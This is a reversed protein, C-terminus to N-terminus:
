RNKSKQVVEVKDFKQAKTLDSLLTAQARQAEIAQGM